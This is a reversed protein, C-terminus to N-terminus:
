DCAIERNHVHQVLTAGLSMCQLAPSVIAANRAFLDHGNTVVKVIYLHKGEGPMGKDHSIRAFLQPAPSPRYRCRVVLASNRGRELLHEVSCLDLIEAKRNEIRPQSPLKPEAHM